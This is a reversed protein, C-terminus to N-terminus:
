TAVTRPTVVFQEIDPSAVSDKFKGITAPWHSFVPGTGGDARYWSTCGGRLLVSEAFLSQLDRNFDDHVDEKVEISGVDHADVYEICSAIYKTQAEVIETVAPAGLNPGNVLFLNPFGKVLTGLYAEPYASWAQGLDGGDRGTVHFGGLM